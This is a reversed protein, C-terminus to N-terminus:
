LKQTQKEHHAKQLYANTHEGLKPLIRKKEAHALPFRVLPLLGHESETEVFMKRAIAQPHNIVDTMQNVDGYPIGSEELKAKWHNSPQSAIVEEVAKEAITRNNRRSEITAMVKDSVWDPKNVVDVCFREWSNQDAVVLSIYRGDSAVYPGYPVIFQHRMGCLPPESNSHWAHHPFYGLWPLASDFMSVDIYTGRKSSVREYLAMMIGIVANSGAILDTIPLGVKAPMEPYGNSLLIGTEGQMTLDYAKVDRYPGDQGYGSLSVYILQKNKSLDDPGLGIRSAAGPGLNEVFVDSDDIIKKLTQLDEDCKLDLQVSKKGSNVWVFGTSLGKVANDWGRVVDGTDPREIKVVEAGMEALVFTCYPMAVAQELAVVRVGKLPQDLGKKQCNKVRCARPFYQESSRSSEEM